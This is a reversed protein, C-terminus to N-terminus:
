LSFAYTGTTGTAWVKRMAYTSVIQGAVMARTRKLAANATDDDWLTFTLNGPTLCEVIFVPATFTNASEAVDDLTVALTGTAVPLWGKAQGARTHLNPDGVAM